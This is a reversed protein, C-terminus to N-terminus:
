KKVKKGSRTQLLSEAFHLIVVKYFNSNFFSLIWKKSIRDKKM